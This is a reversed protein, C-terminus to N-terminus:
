KTKPGHLTSITQHFPKGAEYLAIRARLVDVWDRHNQQAALELAKHAAALAEPFRGAEAYAAALTGLVDARRGGCLQNARQAHEIAAAGNRLSAAPCTALLWALNNHAEANDPQLELVQRYHALAEDFRGLRELVNGLNGHAKVYDPQIELAKQYQAIAEDFRNLRVCASGLTCRAEAFNPNIEVAQQYQAIAEEFRGGGALTNGLNYHTDANDRQIALAQRYHAIAEDFRGREALANALGLHGLECAPNIRIAEQCHTMAGDIQRRNALATGLLSHALDNQSTCALTHNWLTESDRWFSTQRWACGMLVVLVLM